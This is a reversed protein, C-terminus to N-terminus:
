WKSRGPRSLTLKEQVPDGFMAAVAAAIFLGYATAYGAGGGPQDQGGPV